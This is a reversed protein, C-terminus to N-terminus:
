AQVAKRSATTITTQRERLVLPSTLMGTEGLLLVLDDQTVGVTWIIRPSKFSNFNRAKALVPTLSCLVEVQMGMPLSYPHLIHIGALLM